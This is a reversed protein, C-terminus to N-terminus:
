ALVESIKYRICGPELIHTPMGERSYRRVTALRWKLRISANWNGLTFFSRHEIVDVTLRYRNLSTAKGTLANLIQSQIASILAGSNEREARLDRV